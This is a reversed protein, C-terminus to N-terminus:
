PCVSTVTFFIPLFIFPFKLHSYALSLKLTVTFSSQKHDSMNKYAMILSEENLLLEETVARQIGQRETWNISVHMSLLFCIYHLGIAADLQWQQLTTPNISSLSLSLRHLAVFSFLIKYLSVRYSIFLIYQLNIPKGFSLVNFDLPLKLSFQRQHSPM